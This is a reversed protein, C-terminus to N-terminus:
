PNERRDDAKEKQALTADIEGWLEARKPAAEAGASCQDCWHLCCNNAHEFCDGPLKGLEELAEGLRVYADALRFGPHDPRGTEFLDRFRRAEELTLPKPENRIEDAM